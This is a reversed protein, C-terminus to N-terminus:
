TAAQAANRAAETLIRQQCTTLYGGREAIDRLESEPLAPGLDVGAALVVAAMDQRGALSLGSAYHYAMWTADLKPGSYERPGDPTERYRTIGNDDYPEYAM